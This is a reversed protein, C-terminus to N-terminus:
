LLINVKIKKDVLAAFKEGCDADGVISGYHTPYVSKPMIANALGAAQRYDTTYTGGVPLFAIDCKVKEADPTADTDGAVYIKKGETEVVYGIWGSEKKHFSKGINYAPVAKVQMGAVVKEEDPSLYVAGYYGAKELDGKISLPAVFLTGQKKIKEVSEPSFHDYHSHTFFIIDADHPTEEILFPDFYVTRDSVIKISSHANVSVKM